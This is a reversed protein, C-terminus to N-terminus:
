SPCPTIRPFHTAGCQSTHGAAGFLHQSEPHENVGKGDAEKLPGWARSREVHGELMPRSSKRQSEPHETSQHGLDTGLGGWIPAVGLEEMPEARTERHVCTGWSPGWCGLPHARPRTSSGRVDGPLGHLSPMCGRRPPGRGERPRTCGLLGPLLRPSHWSLAGPTWPRIKHENPRKNGPQFDGPPPGAGANLGASGAKDDRPRGLPCGRQGTWM